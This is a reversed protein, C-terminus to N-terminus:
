AAGIQWHVRQSVWDRGNSVASTMLVTAPRSGSGVSRGVSGLPTTGSPPKAFRGERGGASTMHHPALISM